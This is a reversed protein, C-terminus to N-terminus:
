STLFNGANQLVRLNMVTSVFIRWKEGGHAVCVWDVCGRWGVEMKINDVCRVVLDDGVFGQICLEEWRRTGCALGFWIQHTFIDVVFVFFFSM